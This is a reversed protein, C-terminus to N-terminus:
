RRRRPRDDEDDDKAYPNDDEPEEDDYEDRRKKKKSNGQYQADGFALIPYFIVPLLILGIGFGDSKGFKRALEMTIMIAAVINVFPIFLLIFWLIEKKCIECTLVYTNYIPVISAWGPQGAKTFIKWSSVITIILIVGFFALPCAMAAILSGQDIQPPPGGPQKPFGQQAFLMLSTALLM